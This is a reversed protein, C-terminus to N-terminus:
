GFLDDLDVGSESAKMYGSKNDTLSEKEPIYVMDTLDEVSIDKLVVHGDAYDDRLDFSFLKYTTKREGYISGKPKFDELSMIGCAIMARQNETLQKEDFEIEEAGNILYCKIPLKCVSDKKIKNKITGNIYELGLQRLKLNLIKLHSEDNLNLKSADFIVPLPVYRNKLEKNIYEGIYGNIHVTKHEPWDDSNISAATWVYDFDAELMLKENEDEVEYMGQIVFRQTIEGKYVNPSIQGTIIFTRDKLLSANSCLFKAFDYDSIFVHKEGNIKIIRQRYYAVKKLWTEDGREDWPVSIKDGNVDITEITDSVSGFVECYARNNKEPISSCSFSVYKDGNSTTGERKYPRNSDLANLGVKGVFRFKNM